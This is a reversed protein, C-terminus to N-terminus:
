SHATQVPRISPTSVFRMPTLEGEDEETGTLPVDKMIFPGEDPLQLRLTAGPTLSIDATHGPQLHRWTRHPSTLGGGGAGDAGQLLRVAAHVPALGSVSVAAM